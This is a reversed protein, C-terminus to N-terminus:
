CIWYYIQLLTVIICGVLGSIRQEAISDLPYTGLNRTYRHPPQETNEASFRYVSLNSLIPVFYSNLVLLFSCVRKRNTGFDVVKFSKSHGSPLRSWLVHTKGNVGCFFQIFFSGYQEIPLSSTPVAVHSCSGACASVILNNHCRATKKRCCLKRTEVISVSNRKGGCTCCIAIADLKSLM